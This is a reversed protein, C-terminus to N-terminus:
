AGHSAPDDIGDDRERQRELERALAARPTTKRALILYLAPVLFLTLVTAALVGGLIVTGIIRRTEAGPGIALALPLAGFFTAISTMVIPRLRVRAAHEVAARLDEGRDRLQNIFEVLLIANKAMIGVALIFGIQSYINISGGGIWLAVLGGVIALPVGALLVVPQVLSEFQAALVLFVIVMALAFAYLFARGSRAYDESVGLYRVQAQAPLIKKAEAELAALADGLAAGGALSAKITIAPRRDVRILEAARGILRTEILGALSVLEGDETRMYVDKLDDPAARDRPRARVMVEYTEADISFDTIDEGGMLIQLTRGIDAVAIGLAAARDRDVLIQLQPNTPQYDLRVQALSPITRARTLIQRAWEHLQDIDEGTIALQVPQEFGSGALSPPNIAFAQAGAIGALRPILSETVDFQTQERQGWDKLRLIILGSNVPGQGASRPAVLSIVHQAPGDEATLPLLVAEIESFIDLMADLTTGEPAAVPILIAGRDERPSLERPLERWLLWGGAALVVALALVLWRVALVGRLLRLYADAAADFGRGVLRYLRADRIRRADILKSAVTVGLTLAVISSLALAGGLAATFESFLRGTDGRLLALPAIVSLLVTTTSIVAFAVEGAGMDAALLRPKEKESYRFVNEAVVVADDVLMGIALILALLTLVNVSFGFLYLVIFAGVVSAPITAAPVLTARWSGLSLFVVAVVLAITILLTLLIQRISAEVFVAEDFAVTVDVDDPIRSQLQQLRERVGASVAVLNSGSQRVVGLGIADEGDLRAATRYSEPGYQVEAVDGLTVRTGDVDRLILGRFEEPRTVETMTRLTLERTDSVLRGAPLELNQARLAREVDLVTLGKAALESLNLRIRMAYRYEGGFLVTAVGPVTSLPDILVRDAFDSLALRDLTESTLVLWLSVQAALSRQSIEPAESEDPLENRIASVRDRVDAAALDLNRALSFEVEVRARGDRSSARIRRVGDIGSVAEEIPETVERQVVAASAGPYIVTVLVTPDDIDPYERVPLNMVAAVGLVILLLSLVTAAVPRIVALTTPKM